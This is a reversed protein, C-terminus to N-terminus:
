RMLSCWDGVEEKMNENEQKFHEQLGTAQKKHTNQLDFFGVDKPHGRNEPVM